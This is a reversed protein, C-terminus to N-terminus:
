SRPCPGFIFVLIIKVMTNRNSNTKGTLSVRTAEFVREDRVV